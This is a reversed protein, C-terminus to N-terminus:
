QLYSLTVITDKSFLEPLLNFLTISPLGKLHIIENPTLDLTDAPGYLLISIPILIVTDFLNARFSATLSLQPLITIDILSQKLTLISSLLKDDFTHSRLTHELATILFNALERLQYRIGIDITIVVTFLSQIAFPVRTAAKVITHSDVLLQDISHRELDQSTVMLGFLLHDILRRSYDM